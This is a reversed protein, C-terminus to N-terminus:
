AQTHIRSSHLSPPEEESPLTSGPDCLRGWAGASSLWPTNDPIGWISGVQHSYKCKDPRGALGVRPASRKQRTPVGLPARPDSRTMKIGPMRVCEEQRNSYFVHSGRDDAVLRQYTRADGSRASSCIASGTRSSRIPQFASRMSSGSPKSISTSMPIPSM